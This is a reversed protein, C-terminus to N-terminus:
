RKCVLFHPEFVSGVVLQDGWPAAVSAGSLEEGLSLMVPRISPEAVGSPDVWLVEWPSRKAPEKAHAAFTLLKPHAAVWLGGYLDLAFNDVGTRLPIEKRLTLDDTEDDRDYVLIRGTTTSAVYVELADESLTIGNAYAIGDAVKRARAGDWFVVNGRRLRLYDERTERDRPGGHDNTAYFREADLAAVDNLNYLLPDTVTRRHALREGNWDYIEVSDSEAPHNVVMLSASGAGGVLSLGHPHLVGPGSGAPAPPASDPGGASAAAGTLPRPEGGARLDYAYIAGPGGTRRDDSSVLAVAHDRDIAIDEAGPAGAVRTCEGIPKEVLDRFQGAAAYLYLVWGAAVLLLAALIWITVRLPKPM